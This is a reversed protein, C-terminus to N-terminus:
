RQDEALLCTFPTNGAWDTSEMIRFVECTNVRLWCFFPWRGSNCTFCYICTLSGRGECHSLHPLFKHSVDQSIFSPLLSPLFLCLFTHSSFLSQVTPKTKGIVTLAKLTAETKGKRPERFDARFLGFITNANSCFLKDEPASFRGQSKDVEGKLKGSLTVLNILCM